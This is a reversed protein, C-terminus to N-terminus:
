NVTGNVVGKIRNIENEDFSYFNNLWQEIDYIAGTDGLLVKDVLASLEANQRNTIRPFPLQILNGKLIKVENFLKIYLYQFIQSNLFALVTKIAMNPISPILINASNLFLSHSDDYAFTLKKNIFKYVLKEAARYYEDKAVQQLQARDYLLFNSAKKLKYPLIDKGTYIPEYGEIKTKSLKEQNNGTVIGLAWISTRLNFQGKNKVKDIIKTDIEDILSFSHTATKYFSTVAIKKSKGNVIYTVFDSPPNKSFEISTYKTSVNTFLDDYITIKEIKGSSLLFDRLDQHTKVNLVSVPMLFKISGGDKLLSFAKVLFLSSTEGSFIPLDNSQLNNRRHAGWPPNTAILDFNDVLKTYYSILLDDSLFDLLYIKPYFTRNKYKSLLNAKALMVALYDNDFGYLNEPNPADLALLFAGSGCCPDLFKKKDTLHYNELMSQAIKLPTYYSGNLNKKGESLYSQYLTGLIDFDEPINVELLTTIVGIHNYEHVFKQTGYPNAKNCTRILNLSLSYLVSDIPWNRQDIEAILTELWFISDAKFCRESPIFKKLSLTKNARKTLKDKSDTRLKKWNRETALSINM